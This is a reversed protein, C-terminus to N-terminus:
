PHANRRHGAAAASGPGTDITQLRDVFRLPRCGDLLNAQVVEKFVQNVKTFRLGVRNKRSLVLM